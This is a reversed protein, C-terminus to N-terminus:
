SHKGSNGVANEGHSLQSGRPRGILIGTVLWLALALWEWGSFHGPVFPLIKMLGMALGVFAGVWAIARERPPPKMRLYAACAAFWGIASALSGVDTIPILIASGLFM